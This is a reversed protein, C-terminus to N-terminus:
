REYEIVVVNMEYDKEPVSNARCITITEDPYSLKEGIYVIPNDNLTVIENAITYPTWKKDTLVCIRKMKSWLEFDPERGHASTMYVDHMPICIRNFMYQASSIGPILMLTEEPYNAKIWEGIGYFSPDGSALVTPTDRKSLLQDIIAGLQNLRGEYVYIQKTETKILNPMVDLQRVTGILNNADMLVDICQKTLLTFQGPGIGVVRIM